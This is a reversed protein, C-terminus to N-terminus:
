HRIHNTNHYSAPAIKEKVSGTKGNIPGDDASNRGFVGPTHNVYSGERDEEHTYYAGQHHYLLVTVVIIGVILICIAVAVFIGIQSETTLISAQADPSSCYRLEDIRLSRVDRGLLRRPYACRACYDLGSDCNRNRFIRSSNMWSLLPSIFCLDCQFANGRLIVKSLLHLRDFKKTLRSELGLFLNNSLNLTRLNALPSLLDPDLEQFSNGSLDLVNLKRQESFLDTRLKSYGSDRLSLRKLNTLVELISKIAEQSMGTNGIGLGELSQILSGFFVLNLFMIKNGSIDLNRVTFNDISTVPLVSLRNNALGLVDLRHGVFTNRQIISIQNGDLRLIKLRRLYKFENPVFTIFLNDRLDLEHLNPLMQYILSHINKLQCGRLLFRRLPRLDKVVEPEIRSLNNGSLDLTDLSRLSMFLRPALIIKNRALTLTRLNTLNYFAGSPTSEIFNDDLHIVEVNKMGALELQRLQNLRNRSLDLIKLYDLGYFSREGIAPINSDTVRLEELYKFGTFIRGINLDNPRGDGKGINLVRIDIDMQSIPISLMGGENCVIRKQRDNNRDCRCRNPCKATVFGVFFVLIVVVPLNAGLAQLKM